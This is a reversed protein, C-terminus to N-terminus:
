MFKVQHCVLGDVYKISCNLYLKSTNCLNDIGVLLNFSATMCNDM